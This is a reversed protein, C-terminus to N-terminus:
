YPYLFSFYQSAYLMDRQNTFNLSIRYVYSNQSCHNDALSLQSCLILGTRDSPKADQGDNFAIDPGNNLAVNNTAGQLELWYPSGAGAPVNWAIPYQNYGNPFPMIGLPQSRTLFDNYTSAALQAWRSGLLEPITLPSTSTEYFQTRTSGNSLYFDAKWRTLEPIKKIEIDTWDKANDSPSPLWILYDEHAQRPLTISTGYVTGQTKSIFKGALRLISTGYQRGLLRIQLYDLGPSPYLEFPDFGGPPTVVVKIFKSQGNTQENDVYISFGTSYYSLDTRNILTRQEAWPRVWFTHNYQNGIARYSNDYRKLRIRVIDESGDASTRAFRVRSENEPYRFEVEPKSLVTGTGTDSFLRSFAANPGVKQGDDLYNNPEDLPFLSKCRQAIVTNDSNVRETKPLALCANMRQAFNSVLTDEDFEPLKVNVVTDPLKPPKDGAIFRIAPLEIGTNLITKVTININSKSNTPKISVDLAMLVKDHGTGDANFAGSIPDIDTGANTLLPQLAARLDNTKQKLDAVTIKASGDRIQAALASPEGTPSLQAAILTTLKTLNVTSSTSEVLPAFYTVDGDTASVVLPSKVDASVTCTYSGDQGSTAKCVETGTADVVSIKAGAMPAGKAAIGQITFTTGQAAATGVQKGVPTCSSFPDSSPSGSDCSIQIRLADSAIGLYKAVIDLIGANAVKVTADGSAKDVTASADGSVKSIVWDALASINKTTKDTYTIVATLVASAGDKLDKVLSAITISQPTKPINAIQLATSPSTASKIAAINPVVQTTVKSSLTVLRDKLKTGTGADAEITKLVEAITAAVNHAEAYKSDTTKLLVYNKMLDVGSLGLEAQVASKAGELTAGADMKAVVATTLPSIVSSNGAPAALTFGSGITTSPNDQDVTTGAVALVVVKYKNFQEQTASLKFAGNEDTTATPEGPTLLGDGDLDLFVTAKFLNGDIAVGSVSSTTTSASTDSGGGGCATVLAASLAAALFALNKNKLM